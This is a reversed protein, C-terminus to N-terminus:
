QRAEKRIDKFTRIYMIFAFITPLVAICAVIGSTPENMRFVIILVIAMYFIVTAMKGWWSSSVVHHEKKLLFVSGIGMFVEKAAVILVIPIPVRNNITLMVLATIQMLKDAAPDALKGWSTIKNFKRAIYGDLVDTLGGLLFLLVAISYSEVYLFYGFIPIIIFRIITLLNPINV